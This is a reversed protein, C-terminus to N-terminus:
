KKEEKAAAAYDVFGIMMEDWTQEGWHVLAKPNPNNPNDKSNDFHATCEIKTGAPLHLPKVLRYNSQWSFDWRPVSLLTETKGDPYVAKYVIDKGRLHMHPLLSYLDVAQDFKAVSKAEYNDAGPLIVLGKQAIARTKVEQKPPEKAFILGISSRDM